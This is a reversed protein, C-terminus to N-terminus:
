SLCGASPSARCSPLRQRAENGKRPRLGLGLLFPERKKRPAM